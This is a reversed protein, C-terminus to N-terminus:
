PVDGVRLVAAAWPTGALRAVFADDATVMQGGLHAALALYLCDYVTTNTQTAADFADALHAAMEHRTVPLSPLQMVLTQAQPLTLLGQRAKKALASALELDLLAPAHLAAGSARVRLAEATHPEVLIWKIAVSADVVFLSM